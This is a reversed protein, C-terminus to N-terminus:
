MTAIRSAVVVTADRGEITVNRIVGELHVYGPAKPASYNWKLCVQPELGDLFAPYLPSDGADAWPTPFLNILDQGSRAAKGDRGALM